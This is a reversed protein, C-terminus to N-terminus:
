GSLVAVLLHPRSGYIHRFQHLILTQGSCHVRFYSICAPLKRWLHDKIHVSLVSLANSQNEAKLGIVLSCLKLMIGPSASSSCKDMYIIYYREKGLWSAWFCKAKPDAWNM